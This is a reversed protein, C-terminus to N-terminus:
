FSVHLPRDSYWGRGHVTCIDPDNALPGSVRLTGGSTPRGEFKITVVQDHWKEAIYAMRSGVVEPEALSVHYDTLGADARAQGFRPAWSEPDRIPHLRLIWLSGNSLVLELRAPLGEALLKDFRQEWDQYWGDIHSDTM